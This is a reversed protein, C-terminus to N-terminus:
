SNMLTILNSSRMNHNMLGKLNRMQIWYRSFEKSLQKIAKSLTITIIVRAKRREANNLLKGRKSIWDKKKLSIFKMWERDRWSKIGTTKLARDMIEVARM